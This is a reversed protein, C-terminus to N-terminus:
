GLSQYGSFAQTDEQSYGNIAYPNLLASLPYRITAAVFEDTSTYPFIIDQTYFSEPGDTFLSQQNPSSGAPSILLQAGVPPNEVVTWQPNQNIVERYELSNTYYVYGLKRWTDGQQFPRSTTAM